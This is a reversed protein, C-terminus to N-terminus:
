AGDEDVAARRDTARQWGACFAAAAESVVARQHDTGGELLPLAQGPDDSMKIRLGELHWRKKEVFTRLLYLELDFKLGPDGTV